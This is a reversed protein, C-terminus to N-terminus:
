DEIHCVDCARGTARCGELTSHCTGRGDYYKYSCCTKASSCWYPYESKTCNRSKSCSSIFFASMAILVCCVIAQIINKKM